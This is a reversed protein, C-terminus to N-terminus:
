LCATEFGCFWLISERKEELINESCSKKVPLKKRASLLIRDWRFFPNSESLGQTYKLYM